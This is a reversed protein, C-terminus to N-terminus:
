PSLVRERLADLGADSLGASRMRKEVDFAALTDVILQEGTTGERALHRNGSV